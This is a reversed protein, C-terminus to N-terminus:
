QMNIMMKILVDRNKEELEIAEDNSLLLGDDHSSKIFNQFDKILVELLFNFNIGHIKEYDKFRAERWKNKQAEYDLNQYIPYTFALMTAKEIISALYEKRASAVFANKHNDEILMLRNYITNVVDQEVSTAIFESNLELASFYELIAVQIEKSYHLPFDKASIVRYLESASFEWDSKSQSCAMVRDYLQVPTASMIDGNKTKILVKGIEEINNM